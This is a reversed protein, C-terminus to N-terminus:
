ETIKSDNPETHHSAIIYDSFYTTLYIFMGERLCVYNLAMLDLTLPVPRKTRMTFM